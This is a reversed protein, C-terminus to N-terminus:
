SPLSPFTTANANLGCESENTPQTSLVMTASNSKVSYDTSQKFYSSYERVGSVEMQRNITYVLVEAKIKEKSERDVLDDYTAALDNIGQLTLTRSNSVLGDQSEDTLQMATNRVTATTGDQLTIVTMDDLESSLIVPEPFKSYSLRVVQVRAYDVLARNIIEEYEELAM